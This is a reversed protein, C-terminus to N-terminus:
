LGVQNIYESKSLDGPSICDCIEAWSLYSNGQGGSLAKDRAALLYAVLFAMGTTMVIDDKEPKGTFTIITIGNRIETKKKYRGLQALLSDFVTPVDSDKQGPTRKYHCFQTKLSAKFYLQIVNDVLAMPNIALHIYQTMSAKTATTTRIGPIRTTGGQALKPKGFTLFVCSPFMSANMNVHDAVIAAQTPSNHELLIVCQVDFLRNHLRVDFIHKSLYEHPAPKSGDFADIRVVQATYFYYSSVCFCCVLINLTM